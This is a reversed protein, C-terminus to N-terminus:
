QTGSGTTKLETGVGAKFTWPPSKSSHASNRADQDLNKQESFNLVDTPIVHGIRISIVLCIESLQVSYGGRSCEPVATVACV